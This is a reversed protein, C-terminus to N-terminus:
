ESGGVATRDLYATAADISKEVLDLISLFDGRRWGSERLGLSKVADELSEKSPPHAVGGSIRIDYLFALPSLDSRVKGALNALEITLEPDGDKKRGEAISILELLDSQEPKMEAEIAAVLVLRELLKRSGLPKRNDDKSLAEDYQELILRLPKPKLEDIVLTSLLTMRKIFEDDRAAAQYVAKLARGSLSDLSGSWIRESEKKLSKAFEKAAQNLDELAMGIGTITSAIVREQQLASLTESSPPEVAYQAWHHWDDFPVDQGFDGINVSLLENGLRGNSRLGWVSGCHVTGDDDVWFGSAEEYRRLVDQQFYVPEMYSVSTDGFKSYDRGPFEAWRAPCARGERTPLTFTSPDFDPAEVFPNDLDIEQPKIEFWLHLRRVIYPNGGLGDSQPGWGEIMARLGREPSGLFIADDGLFGRAPMVKPNHQTLGHYHGVVLSLQRMQLYRELYRPRIEVVELTGGELTHHKLAAQSRKADWWERGPLKEELELALYLDPNIFLSDGESAKRTFVLPEAVVNSYSFEFRHFPVYRYQAPPIGLQVSGGANGLHALSNGVAKLSDFLQGFAGIPILISRREIADLGGDKRRRGLSSFIGLHFWADKLPDGLLDSSLDLDPIEAIEPPLDKKEFM